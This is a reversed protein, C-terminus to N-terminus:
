EEDDTELYEALTDLEEQRQLYDERKLDYEYKIGDYTIFHVGFSVLCAVALYTQRKFDSEGIYSVLLMNTEAPNYLYPNYRYPLVNYDSANESWEETSRAYSNRIALAQYITAVPAFRALSAYRYLVTHWFGGENDFNKNIGWLTIATGYIAGLMTAMNSWATIEKTQLAWTEDYALVNEIRKPFLDRRYYIDFLKYNYIDLAELVMVLSGFFFGYSFVNMEVDTSPTVYQEDPTSSPTPSPDSM